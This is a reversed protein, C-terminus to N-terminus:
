NKCYTDLIPWLYEALLKHGYASFHVDDIFLRGSASNKLLFGSPELFIVSEKDCYSKLQKQPQLAIEPSAGLLLASMQKSTPMAIIIVKKAGAKKLFPSLTNDFYRKMKENDWAFLCTNNQMGLPVTKSDSNFHKRIRLLKVSELTQTLGSLGGVKRMEASMKFVKESGYVWEFDVLDNLCFIIIVAKWNVDSLYKDYFKLEQNTSWGPCSGNSLQYKKNALKQMRYVFTNEYPVGDGYTVSDGLFLIKAVSPSQTIEVTGLLSRSNTHHVFRGSPHRLGEFRPKLIYSVDPDFKYLARPNYDLLEKIKAYDASKLRKPKLLSLSYLLM